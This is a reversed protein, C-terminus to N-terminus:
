LRKNEPEVTVELTIDGITITTTEESSGAAQLNLKGDFSIMGQIGTRGDETLFDESLAITIVGEQSIEYTGIEDAGDYVTGEQKTQIKIEDPLTYTFTDGPYVIFDKSDM